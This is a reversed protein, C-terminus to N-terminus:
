LAISSRRAIVIQSSFLAGYPTRKSLSRYGRWAPRSFSRAMLDTAEITPAAEHREATRVFWNILLALLAVDDVIGLLPIDGLINLPSLIFLAAALALLKLRMPVRASQVLAPIRGLSKRSTLFLKLLGM